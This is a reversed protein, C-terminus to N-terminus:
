ETGGEHRVAKGQGDLSMQPAAGDAGSLGYTNPATRQINPDRVAIAVISRLPDQSETHFGSDLLAQWIEKVHLPRGRTSLVGVIAERWSPQGNAPPPGSRRGPRRPEAGPPQLGFERQYLEEAVALRRDFDLLDHNLEILRTRIRERQERYTAIREELQERFGQDASEM